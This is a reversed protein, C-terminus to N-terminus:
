HLAVRSHYRQIRDQQAPIAQQLLFKGLGYKKKLSAYAELETHFIGVVEQGVIGLFKGDHDRVLEEEHSKYYQYEMELM